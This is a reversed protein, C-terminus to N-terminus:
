YPRQRINWRYLVPSFVVEFFFFLAVTLTIEFWSLELFPATILSPLLAEPIQDLGTVMSSPPLKRRRKIFSALLDGLMALLGFAGGLWLPEHLLWAM